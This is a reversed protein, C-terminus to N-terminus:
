SVMSVDKPLFPSFWHEHVMPDLVEESLIFMRLKGDASHATLPLVHLADVSSSVGITM